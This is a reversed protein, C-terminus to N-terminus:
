WKVTNCNGTKTLGPIAEPTPKSGTLAENFNQREIGQKLRQEIEKAALDQKVKTIAETAAKEYNIELSNGAASEIAGNVHTVAKVTKTPLETSPAGLNRYEFENQRSRQNQVAALALKHRPHGEQNCFFCRAGIKIILGSYYEHEEMQSMDEEDPAYGLSKMGQKYTTCDAVHHDASGCNACSRRKDMDDRPKYWSSRQPQSGGQANRNESYSYKKPKMLMYERSKQRMEEPTPASDKSLTYYTALMTRLDDSKVGDIFKSAISFNRRNTSEEPDCRRRLSELDDLFRDISEDDRQRKKEFRMMAQHGKMGSGFRNLLIEFIKDATDREEEKKAVVCKLATGELNSLIATCAQREDNLNDQELHLRMVEVWTDIRGDSDDKFEKPKKFTKRSKGERRDSSDTNRTAFAELTGNMMEWTSAWTMADPGANSNATSDGPGGMTNSAGNKMITKAATPAITVADRTLLLPTSQRKNRQPEVFDVRTCQTRDAAPREKSTSNRLIADLKAQIACSSEAQNRSM